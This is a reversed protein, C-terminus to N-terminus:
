FLNSHLFLHHLLCGFEMRPIKTLEDVGFHGGGGIIRVCAGGGWRGPPSRNVGFRRNPSPRRM